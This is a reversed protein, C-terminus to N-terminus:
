DTEYMRSMQELSSLEAKSNLHSLEIRMTLREFNLRATEGFTSGTQPKHTPCLM